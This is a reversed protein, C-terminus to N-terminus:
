PRSRRKVVGPERDIGSRVGSHPRGASCAVDIRRIVGGEGANVTMRVALRVRIRVVRAHGVVDVVGGTTIRAVGGSLTAVSTRLLISLPPTFHAPTEWNHRCSCVSLPAASHPCFYAYAASQQQQQSACSQRRPGGILGRGDFADRHLMMARLRLYPNHEAPRYRRLHARGARRLAHQQIKGVGTGARVLM